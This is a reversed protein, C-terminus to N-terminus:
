NLPMSALHLLQSFYIQLCSADVIGLASVWIVFIQSFFLTERTKQTEINYILNKMKVIKLWRMYTGLMIQSNSNKAEFEIGIMLMGRANM